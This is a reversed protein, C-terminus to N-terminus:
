LKPPVGGHDVSRKMLWDIQVDDGLVFEHEGFREFGWRTYFDIARQNKEWVGLWIIQKGREQALQLCRQMLASGVGKGISKQIAYIRAIEIAPVNRPLLNTSGEHLRVYGVVENDIFALLFVNGAAGVEQILKQRTFQLNMFKDMDAQTNYAAFSEYFTQRSIDAILAADKKAAQKIIIDSMSYLEDNRTLKRM